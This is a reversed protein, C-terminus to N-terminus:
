IHRWCREDHIHLLDKRTCHRTRPPSPITCAPQLTPRHEARRTPHPPKRQLPLSQAATLLAPLHTRQCGGANGASSNQEEVFSLSEGWARSAM